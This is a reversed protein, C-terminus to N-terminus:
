PNAKATATSAIVTAMSTKCASLVFYTLTHFMYLINTSAFHTDNKCPTCDSLRCVVVRHIYTCLGRLFQVNLDMERSYPVAFRSLTFSGHNWFRHPLPFRPGRFNFTGGGHM